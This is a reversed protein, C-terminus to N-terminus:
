TPAIYTFVYQLIPHLYVLYVTYRGVKEYKKYSQPVEAVISEKRRLNTMYVEEEVSYDDPYVGVNVLSLYIPLYTFLTNFQM